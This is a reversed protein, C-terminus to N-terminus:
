AGRCLHAKETVVATMGSLGAALGVEQAAQSWFKGGKRITWLFGFNGGVKVGKLGCM